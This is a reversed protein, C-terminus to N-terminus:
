IRLYLIDRIHFMAYCGSDGTGARVKILGSEGSSRVVGKRAYNNASSTM